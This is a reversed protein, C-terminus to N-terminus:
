GSGGWNGTWGWSLCPRCPRPLNQLAEGLFLNGSGLAVTSLTVFSQGVWGGPRCSLTLVKLVLFVSLPSLEVLDLSM